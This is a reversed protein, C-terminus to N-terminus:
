HTPPAKPQPKPSLQINQEPAPLHTEINMAARRTMELFIANLAYAPAGLLGESEALEGGPANSVSDRLVDVLVGMPTEGFTSKTMWNSIAASTAAPEIAVEALRRERPKGNLHVPIENPDEKPAEAAPLKDKRKAM